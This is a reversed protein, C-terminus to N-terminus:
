QTPLHVGPVGSLQPLALQVSGPYTCHYLVTLSDGTYSQPFRGFVQTRNVAQVCSADLSSSGSSTEVTPAEHNGRRRIAFQIYVTAGAPTGAAVESLNWKQAVSSKVGEIYGTLQSAASEGRALRRPTVAAETPPMKNLPLHADALDLHDLDKVKVAAAVTQAHAARASLFPPASRSTSSLCIGVLTMASAIGAVWRPKHNYPLKSKRAILWSLAVTLLMLVVLCTARGVVVRLAALIGYLLLCLVACAAWLVAFAEPMAAPQRQALAPQYAPQRPTSPQAHPWTKWPDPLQGKPTLVARLLVESGKTYAETAEGHEGGALDPYVRSLVRSWPRRPKPSTTFLTSV